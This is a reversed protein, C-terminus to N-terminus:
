VAARHHTEEPWMRRPAGQNVGDPAQLLQLLVPKLKKIGDRQEPTVEERPFGLKLVKDGKNGKLRLPTGQRELEKLLDSAQREQDADNTAAYTQPDGRNLNERLSAAGM